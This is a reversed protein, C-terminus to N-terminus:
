VDEHELPFLFSFAPLGARMFHCRFHVLQESVLLNRGLLTQTVRQIQVEVRYMTKAVLVTHALLLTQILIVLKALVDIVKLAFM